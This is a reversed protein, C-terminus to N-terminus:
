FFTSILNKQLQVFGNCEETLKSDQVKDNNRVSNFLHIIFHETINQENFSM